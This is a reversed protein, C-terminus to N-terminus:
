LVLQKPRYLFMSGVITVIAPLVTAPEPVAAPGSASGSGSTNGFRTKWYAYDAQEVTGDLYDRHFGVLSCAAAPGPPSVASGLYAAVVVALACLMFWTSASRVAPQVTM